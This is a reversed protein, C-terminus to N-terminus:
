FGYVPEPDVALHHARRRALPSRCPFYMSAWLNRWKLSAIRNLGLAIALAAIVTIPVSLVTFQGHHELRSVLVDLRHAGKMPASGSSSRAGGPQIRYFSYSVSQALPLLYVGAFFLLDGAARVPIRASAGRVTKPFLLRYWQRM